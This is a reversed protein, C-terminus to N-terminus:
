VCFFDVGVVTVYCKLRYSAVMEFRFSLSVTVDLFSECFLVFYLVTTIINDNQSINM